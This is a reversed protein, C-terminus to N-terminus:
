ATHADFGAQALAAILAQKDVKTVQFRVHVQKRWLRTKVNLVGPIVTLNTRIREACGDCVMGPVSFAVETTQDPHVTVM